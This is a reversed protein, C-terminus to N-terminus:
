HKSLVELGPTGQKGSSKQRLLRDKGPEAQRADKKIKEEADDMSLGLFHPQRPVESAALLM